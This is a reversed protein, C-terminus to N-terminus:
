ANGKSILRQKIEWGDGEEVAHAGARANDSITDPLYGFVGLTPVDNSM